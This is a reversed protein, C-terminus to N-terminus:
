RKGENIATGLLAFHKNLAKLLVQHHLANQSLQAVQQDLAVGEDASQVLLPTVMQPLRHLPERSAALAARESQMRDEFSVSLARFGPTNANAINHALAQQRLTTADLALSLLTTTTAAVADLNTNM